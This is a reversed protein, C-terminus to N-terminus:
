EKYIIMVDFTGDSSSMKIDKVDDPHLNYLFENVKEQLEDLESDCFIEVKLKKLM